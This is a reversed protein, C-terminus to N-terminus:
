ISCVVHKLAGTRISHMSIDYFPIGIVTQSSQLRNGVGALGTRSFHFCDEAELMDALFPICEDRLITQWAHM